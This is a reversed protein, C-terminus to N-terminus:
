NYICMLAVFVVSIRVKLSAVARKRWKQVTLIAFM